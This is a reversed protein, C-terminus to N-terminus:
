NLRIAYRVVRQVGLEDRTVWWVHDRGFVPEVYGDFEDPAAVVGLYTGDEEFVDFRMAEEWVVAQSRPNDPDHDENRIERGETSVQVWIRGDRSAYLDTFFPKHEPIPPGDWDWDSVLSRMRRLIREREYDREAAAVPVPEIDREIRLIGDNLALELRYQASFGTLLHGGPHITWYFDPTFPVGENM